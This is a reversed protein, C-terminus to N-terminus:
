HLVLRGGVDHHPTHQGQDGQQAADPEEERGEAPPVKEAPVSALLRGEGEACRAVHRERRRLPRARPEKQYHCHQEEDLRHHPRCRLVVPSVQRAEEPHIERLPERVVEHAGPVHLQRDEPHRGRKQCGPDEEGRHNSAPLGPSLVPEGERQEAKAATTNPLMIPSYAPIKPRMPSQHAQNPSWPKSYRSRPRKQCISSEIPRKRQTTISNLAIRPLSRRSCMPLM